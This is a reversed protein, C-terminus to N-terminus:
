MSVAQPDAELEELGVIIEQAEQAELVREGQPQTPRTGEQELTVSFGRTGLPMNPAAMQVEGARVRVVGGDVQGSDTEFWFHYEYGAPPPQLGEVNLLWQQHRGCVWVRGYVPEERPALSVPRLPYYRRATRTVMSYNDEVQVSQAQATNLSGRLQEITSAQFRTQAFLYGLGLLCTGLVAALALYGRGSLRGAAPAPTSVPQPSPRPVTAEAETAQTLQPFMVLKNGAASSPSEETQAALSGQISQWVEPRPKVPELEYPLLALVEAYERVLSAEELAGEADRSLRDLLELTVQDEHRSETRM